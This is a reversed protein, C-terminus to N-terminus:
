TRFPHSGLMAFQPKGEFLYVRICYHVVICSPPFWYFLCVVWDFAGVGHGTGHRYDLGAKWMPGRVVADLQYGTIGAPFVCTDLAIHSQLVHTFCRREHDTPTGLHM